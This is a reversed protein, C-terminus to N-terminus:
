NKNKNTKRISLDNELEKKHQKESVEETEIKLGRKRLEEPVNLGTVRWQMKENIYYCKRMGSEYVVFRFFHTTRM